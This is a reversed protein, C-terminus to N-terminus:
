NPYKFEIDPSNLVVGEVNWDELKRTDDLTNMYMPCPLVKLGAALADCFTAFLRLKFHYANSGPHFSFAHTLNVSTLSTAGPPVLRMEDEAERRELFGVRIQLPMNQEDYLYFLREPQHNSPSWTYTPICLMRNTQNKVSANLYLETEGSSKNFRQEMKVEVPLTEIAANLPEPAGAAVLLFSIPRILRRWPM